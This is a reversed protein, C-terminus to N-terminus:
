WVSIFNRTIGLTFNPIQHHKCQGPTTSQRAFLFLLQHLGGALYSWNNKRHRYNFCQRGWFYLGCFYGLKFCFEVFCRTSVSTFRYFWPEHKTFHQPLHYPSWASLWSWVLLQGCFKSKKIETCLFYNANLFQWIRRLQFKWPEKVM